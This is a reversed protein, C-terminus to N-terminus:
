KTEIRKLVIVSRSVTYVRLWHKKSTSDYITKYDINEDIRDQGLYKKSDSNLIIKYTGKPVDFGYDTFSNFPNFNFVFYLGNRSYILVQDFINRTIAYPYEEDFISYERAIKIMDHDFLNLYYYGLRDNEALSWQRRAYNYSWGNGERPFDIWEPHGFENGMFNLYGNSATSMTLIRIMKHLSLARDITLNRLEVDMNFYMDQDALRFILTKDGVLAQDHSEAYSIM